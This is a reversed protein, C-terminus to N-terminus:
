NININLFQFQRIKLYILDNLSLTTESVLDRLIPNYRLRRLRTKPFSM